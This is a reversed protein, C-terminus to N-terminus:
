GMFKDLAVARRFESGFKMCKLQHLTKGILKIEHKFENRQPCTVLMQYRTGLRNDKSSGLIEMRVHAITTLQKFEDISQKFEDIPQKFENAM